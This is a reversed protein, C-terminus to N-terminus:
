KILRELLDDIEKELEKNEKESIITRVKELVKNYIEVEDKNNWDILKLPIQSVYSQTYRIRHGTHSGKIRYWDNIIKSNLWALVYKLDEKLGNKNIIILVDGSGFYKEDTYSYRAKLSRDMCPVFIKPKNLSKEFLQKNRITAWNWWKKNNPMYRKNLREKDKLLREYIKPYEKLDEETKIDDVFLYYSGNEIYYRKCNKAKIFPFIFKKEKESFNNIQFDNIIYAEDYGSVIGV